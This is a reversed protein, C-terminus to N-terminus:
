TKAMLHDQEFIAGNEEDMQELERLQEEYTKPRNLEEAKLDQEIKEFIDFPTEIGQKDGYFNWKYVGNWEGISFVFRLDKSIVARSPHKFHGQYAQYVPEQEGRMLYDFVKVVGEKGCCIIYKNNGSIEFDVCEMETVDYCDKIHILESASPDEPIRFFKLKSSITLMVIDKENPAFKIKSILDGTLDVSYKLSFNRTELVTIINTNSSINALLSSDPSFTLSQYSQNPKGFEINKIATFEGAKEMNLIVIKGCKFFVAM